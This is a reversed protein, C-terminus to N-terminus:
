RVDATRLAVLIGPLGFSGPSSLAELPTDRADDEHHRSGDTALRSIRRYQLRAPQGCHLNKWCAVVKSSITLAFVADARRNFRGGSMRSRASSTISYRDPKKAM